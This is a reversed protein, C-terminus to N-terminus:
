RAILVRAQAIGVHIPPAGVVDVYQVIVVLSERPKIKRMSRIDFRYRAAGMGESVQVSSSPFWLPHNGWYLWPYDPESAPDPVSGAGAAFADSSVVGIALCIDVADNTSPAASPSITYEGLMRLVTFPFTTAPLAGGLSTGDATLSMNIGAIFDWQKSMRNGAHRDAM